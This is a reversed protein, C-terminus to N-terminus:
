LLLADHKTGLHCSCIVHCTLLMEVFCVEFLNGFCKSKLFDYAITPTIYRSNGFHYM